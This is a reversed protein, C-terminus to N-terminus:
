TLMRVLARRRKETEELETIRAELEAVYRNRDGEAAMEPFAARYAALFKADADAREERNGQFGPIARRYSDPAPLYVFEALFKKASMHRPKESPGREAFHTIRVCEVFGECTDLLYRSTVKWRGKNTVGKRRWMSYPLIFGTLEESM